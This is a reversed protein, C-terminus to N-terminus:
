TGKADDCASLSFNDEGHFKQFRRLLGRPTSCDVGLRYLVEVRPLTISQAPKAFEQQNDLM